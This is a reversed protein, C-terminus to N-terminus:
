SRHKSYNDDKSKEGGSPTTGPLVDDSTICPTVFSIRVYMMNRISAM